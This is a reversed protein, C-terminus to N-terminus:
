IEKIYDRKLYQEYITKERDFLGAKLWIELSINRTFFLSLTMDNRLM